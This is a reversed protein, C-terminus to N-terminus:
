GGVRTASLYNVYAYTVDMAISGTSNSAQIELTDGVAFYQLGAFAGQYAPYGGCISFGTGNKLCYIIWNAGSATYIRATIVYWGAVTCTLVDSAETWGELPSPANMALKAFSTGVNQASWNAFTRYQYEIVPTIQHSM